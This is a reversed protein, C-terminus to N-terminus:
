LRGSEKLRDVLWVRAPPLPRNLPAFVFQELFHGTLILGLDVDGDSLGAQAGLLFPPLKLLRDKYAEGAQRSVARGTRPSVYILDDVAGTAACRSLDLGFGLDQLLGAEFRVYVAPWIQPHALALILSELGYFAGPHPEREPLAGASVAAAASLGALAMADDFLAAPGEGVPELSASGLQESVRARYRAIVRSGAQLFPRMKRSAGGAVHAAFRGHEATLLDVIAGSEGHARASLVYADDEWEM